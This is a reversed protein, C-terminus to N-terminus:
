LKKIVVQYGIHLIAIKEAHINMFDDIAAKPRHLPMAPNGWLYDDFVIVGHQNLMNFAMVADTLVDPTQHSGDVYIFDFTDNIRCMQDFSKGKKIIPKIGTKSSAIAINNRFRSEVASMEISAHEEGGQWTDICYIFDDKSMMNEMIWTTSKGEYSGIELFNKSNVKPLHPIILPWLREGYEFWNQTFEYDM